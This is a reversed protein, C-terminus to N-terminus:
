QDIYLMNEYWKKFSFPILKWFKSKIYTKSTFLKRTNDRTPNTNSTVMDTVMSFTDEKISNMSFLVQYAMVSRYVRNNQGLSVCLQKSNTAEKNIVEVARSTNLVPLNGYVQTIVVRACIYLFKCFNLAESM